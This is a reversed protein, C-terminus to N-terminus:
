PAHHSDGKHKHNPPASPATTGIVAGQGFPSLLIPSSDFPPPLPAQVLLTAPTPEPKPTDTAFLPTQKM